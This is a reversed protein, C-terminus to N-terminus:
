DHHAWKTKICIYYTIGCSTLQFEATYLVWKSYLTIEFQRWACHTSAPTYLGPHQETWRMHVCRGLLAGTLGLSFCSTKQFDRKEIALNPGLGLSFYSTKQFEKEWHSFQPMSINLCITHPFVLWPMFFALGTHLWGTCRQMEKWSCHM